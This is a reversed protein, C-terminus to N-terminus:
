PAPFLALWGDPGGHGPMVMPGLSLAGDVAGGVVVDGSAGWRGFGVAVSSIDVYSFADGVWKGAADVVLVRGLAAASNPGKFAGTVLTRDDDSQALDVCSTSTPLSLDWVVEGTADDRILQSIGSNNCVVAGGDSTRVIRSPKALGTTANSAHWLLAGSPSVGFLVSGAGSLASEIV